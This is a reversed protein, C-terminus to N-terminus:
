RWGSRRVPRTGPWSGVSTSSASRRPRTRLSSRGRSSTSSSRPPTALGSFWQARALAAVVALSAPDDVPTAARARELLEVSPDGSTRREIGSALYADEHGLAIRSLLEADEHCCMGAAVFAAMAGEMSGARRRADGLRTLVEAIPVEGGPRHHALQAARELLVAAEDWAFQDAADAAADLAADVARPVLHGDLEAAEALHGAVRALDRTAEHQAGAMMAEAAAADLHSRQGAALSAYVADRFLSHVFRHQTRDLEEIVGARTAFTLAADVEERPRRATSAVLDVSFERGIV